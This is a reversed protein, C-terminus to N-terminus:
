NPDLGLPGDECERVNLVLPLTVIVIGGRNGTPFRWTKMEDALCRQVTATSRGPEPFSAQMVQGTPSIIFRVLIHSGSSEPDCTCRDLSARHHHIVREVLLRDLSGM